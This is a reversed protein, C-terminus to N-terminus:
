ATEEPRDPARSPRPSRAARAPPPDEGHAIAFYRAARRELTPWDREELSRSALLKHGVGVSAAGARLFRNARRADIGGTVLFSIDPFPERLLRLYDVGAPAAPFLKVLDAGLGHALAVETPSFAGPVTLMGHARAAAIVPADTLPSLMMRAGADVVRNVDDVTRVTGAGILAEGGFQRALLGIAEHAAPSTLSVEFARYGVGLLRETATAIDAPSPGRFIVVLDPVSSVDPPAQPM